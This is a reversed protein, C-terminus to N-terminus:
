NVIERSIKLFYKKNNNHPIRKGILLTTNTQFTLLANIKSLQSAAIICSYVKVSLQVLTEDAGSILLESLVLLESTETGANIAM